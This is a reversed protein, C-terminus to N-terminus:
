RIGRKRLTAGLGRAHRVVADAVRDANAAAYDSPMSCSIADTAPIRYDVVAAICSIGIMGQEQEFAWGRARTADLEAFLAQRDTITHETVRELRRPLIVDVEDATLEALLAQGLATFHVPLERGVRYVREVTVQSERSELYIVNADVRRAYHVTHGVETRLEELARRAHPLVPDRDLYSTGALLAHPGIGFRQGSEDGEIWKLGRLTRVLAHLSSRPYGTREQLEAISLMSRESALTEIIRVAREASKVGRLEDTRDDDAGSPEAGVTVQTAM